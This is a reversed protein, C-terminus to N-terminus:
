RYILILSLVKNVSNLAPIFNGKFGKLITDGIFPLLMIENEFVDTSVDFNIVDSFYIKAFIVFSEKQTTM